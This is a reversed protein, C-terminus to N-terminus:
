SITLFIFLALPLASWKLAALILGASGHGFPGRLGIVFSIRARRLGLPRTRGRIQRKNSQKNWLRECDKNLVPLPELLIKNSLLFVKNVTYVDLYQM